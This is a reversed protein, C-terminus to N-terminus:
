AAKPTVEGDHNIDDIDRYRRSYTGKNGSTTKNITEGRNGLWAKQSLPDAPSEAIRRFAVPEGRLAALGGIM